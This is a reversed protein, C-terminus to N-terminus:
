SWSSRYSLFFFKPLWVTPFIPEHHAFCRPQLLDWKFVRAPMILSSYCVPWMHIECALLVGLSILLIHSGSLWLGLQMAGNSVLSMALDNTWISVQRQMVEGQLLQGAEGAAKGSFPPWLTLDGAQCQAWGCSTGPCLASHGVLLRRSFVVLGIQFGDLVVASKNRFCLIKTPVMMNEYNCHCNSWLIPKAFASLPQRNSIQGLYDDELIRVVKRRLRHINGSTGQLRSYCNGVKFITKLAIYLAPFDM